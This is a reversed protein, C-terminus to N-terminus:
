KVYTTCKRATCRVGVADRSTAVKGDEARDPNTACQCDIVSARHSPECPDFIATQNAAIGIYRFSGCCDDQHLRVVCDADTACVRLEDKVLWEDKM